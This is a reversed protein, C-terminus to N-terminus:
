PERAPATKPDSYVAERTKLSVRMEVRELPNDKDDRSQGAIAEVVDIGKIVKGFVTYQSDLSPMDDLCIYFQSGHSEKRPNVSDSLRAMAVSGREHKLRIEAPITYEPGGTGHESRAMPNRSLPDGGQIVFKPIIRHFTTGNYYGQATLKKFNSCTQPANGTDLAIVIDGFKSSIVAFDMGPKVEFERNVQPNYEATQTEQTRPPVNTCASILLTAVASLILFHARRM